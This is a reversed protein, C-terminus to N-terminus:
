VVQVSEEEPKEFFNKVALLLNDKSIPKMLYGQPYLMLCKLILARDTVASVFIVPVNCYKKWTLKRMRELMEGGNMNPMNFDLLILDPIHKDLYNFADKASNVASVNYEDKLFGYFTKLIMPEDDVLLITKRVAKEKEREIMQYYEEDFEGVPYHQIVGCVRHYEGIKRMRGMYVSDSIRLEVGPYFKNEIQIKCCPLSKNQHNEICLKTVIEADNGANEVIISRGAVVAGGVIRGIATKSEINEGAYVDSNIISAFYVNEGTQVKAEEIFSTYLSGKAKIDARHDGHIGYKIIIDGGAEINAGEVVGDVKINGDAIMTVGSLVDGKVYISGNYQIVGTANGADKDIVQQEYVSLTDKKLIVEGNATAYYVHDRVEVGMGCDIITEKPAVPAIVTAYVTYGFYGNSPPYYQAIKDGAKVLERRISYDVSGDTRIQPRYEKPETDFYFDYHGENLMGSKRGKALVFSDQYSKCAVLGEIGEKCLGAKIGHEELKERVLEQTIEEEGEVIMGIAEMMDSSVSIKIRGKM